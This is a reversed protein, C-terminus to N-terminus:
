HVNEHYTVYADCQGVLDGYHTHDCELWTTHPWLTPPRQERHAELADLTQTIHLNTYIQWMINEYAFIKLYAYGTYKNIKHKVM